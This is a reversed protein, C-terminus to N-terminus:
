CGTRHRFEKTKPRQSTEAEKVHALVWQRCGHDRASEEAEISKKTGLLPVISIGKGRETRMM